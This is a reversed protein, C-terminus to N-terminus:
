RIVPAPVCVLAPPQPPQGIEEEVSRLWTPLFRVSSMDTVWSSDGTSDNEFQPVYRNDSPNRPFTVPRADNSTDLNRVAVWGEINTRLSFMGQNSSPRRKFNTDNYFEVEAGPVGFVFLSTVRDDFTPDSGLVNYWPRRKIKISGLKPVGDAAVFRIRPQDPVSSVLESIGLLWAAVKALSRLSGLVSEVQRLLKFLPEASAFPSHEPVLIAVASDHTLGFNPESFLAVVTPVFIPLALFPVPGVTFPLSRAGLRLNGRVLLCYVEGIPNQVTDLRLERFVPPVAVSVDPSALGNAAIFDSGEALEVGNRLVVWTLEVQVRVDPLAVGGFLQGLVGAPNPTAGGGIIPAAPPFPQATVSGIATTIITDGQEGAAPVDVVGTGTFIVDKLSLALNLAGNVFNSADIEPSAPVLSARLVQGPEVRAASTLVIRLTPRIAALIQDAQADSLAATPFGSV